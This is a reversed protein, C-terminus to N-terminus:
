PKGQAAGERATRVWSADRRASRLLSGVLTLKWLIYFPASALAALERWGGGGRWVAVLIHVGVVALAGAAYVRGAAIPPALTLLLLFVHFALPLLLLDLLPEILRWQRAAIQRVLWPGWEGLMRLRGGEWRSRQTAVGKGATPMEGRVTAADAFRVRRGARVLRLHYELDEVVSRAEYPVALLTERTLAFGNGLIGCSLGLRDRGRPRLVNFGWLAVQMLRTRTSAQPNGVAYRCQVADAGAAMHRRLEEITGPDVVSDADVIIFGDIPEQLLLRFAFDLAFGKGRRLEDRREFVEAGAERARAATSDSCNDAIVVIRPAPAGSESQRLSLVTRAIGSEEDHAPIVVAAGPLAAPAPRRRRPLAGALTVLLLEITGPVTALALVGLVVYWFATM